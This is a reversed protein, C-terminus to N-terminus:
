NADFSAGIAFGDQISGALGVAAGNSGVAATGDPSNHFVAYLFARGLSEAGGTGGTEFALAFSRDVRLREVTWAAGYLYDGSHLDAPIVTGDPLKRGGIKVTWSGSGNRAGHPAFVLKAGDELMLSKGNWTGEGNAVVGAGSKVTITETGNDTAFLPTSDPFSVFGERVTLPLTTRPRLTVTGAGTKSLTAFAVAGEVASPVPYLYAIGDTHLSMGDAGVSVKSSTGGWTSISTRRSGWTGGDFLFTGSGGEVSRDSKLVGQERVCISSATSDLNVLSLMGTASHTIDMALKTSNNQYGYVLDNQTFLGRNTVCIYPEATSTCSECFIRKATFSGGDVIVFGQGNGKFNYFRLNHSCTVSGGDHVYLTADQRAANAGNGLLYFWEYPITMSAGNAVELVPSAPTGADMGGIMSVGASSSGLTFASGAGDLLLRGEALMFPYAGATAYGDADWAARGGVSGTGYGLRQGTGTGSLRLTGLGKKIFRSNSAQTAVDGSITLTADENTIDITTDLNGGSPAITVNKSVTGSTGTYRLTGRGLTVDGEMAELESVDSITTLGTLAGLASAASMVALAAFLHASAAIRIFGKALKGVGNM